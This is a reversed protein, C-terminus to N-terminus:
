NAPLAVNPKGPTLAIRVRGAQIKGYLGYCPELIIEYFDPLPKPTNLWQMGFSPGEPTIKRFELGSIVNQASFDQLELAAIDELTFTVVVDKNVITQGQEDTKITTDRAHLTLASEGNRNLHLSVIEADHFSPVYGFWAVMEAGGPVAGFDSDLSSLDEDSM